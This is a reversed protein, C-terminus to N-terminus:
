EPKSEVGDTARVGENVSMRRGVLDGDRGEVFRVCPWSCTGAALARLKFRHTCDYCPGDLESPMYFRGSSKWKLWDAQSMCNPKALLRERDVTM